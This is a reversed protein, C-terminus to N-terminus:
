FKWRLVGMPVLSCPEISLPEGNHVFWINPRCDLAIAVPLHGITYEFDFKAVLGATIDSHGYLGATVGPGMSLCFGGIRTYAKFVEFNYSATFRLGPYYAAGSGAQWYSGLVGLDVEYFNKKLNQQYSMELGSGVRLGVSRPQTAVKTASASHTHKRVAAPTSALASGACLELMLM